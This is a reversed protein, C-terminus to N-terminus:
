ESIGLFEPNIQLWFWVKSESDMFFTSLPKIAIVTFFHGFSSDGTVRLCLGGARHQLESWWIQCWVGSRLLEGVM